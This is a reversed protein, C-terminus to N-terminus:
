TAKFVKMNQEEVKQFNVEFTKASNSQVFYAGWLLTGIWDNM